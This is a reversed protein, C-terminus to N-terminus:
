HKSKKRYHSCFDEVVKGIWGNETKLAVGAQRHQGRKNDTGPTRSTSKANMPTFFSALIVKISHECDM